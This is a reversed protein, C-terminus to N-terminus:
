VRVAGQARAVAAGGDDELEVPSGEAPAGELRVILAGGGEIRVSAVAVAPGTGRARRATTAEELVGERLVSTGIEDSGCRPCWLREPLGKWSCSACSSVTVGASV